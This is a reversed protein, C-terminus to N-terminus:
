RLPTDLLMGRSKWPSRWYRPVKGRLYAYMVSNVAYRSNAGIVLPELGVCRVAHAMQTATLGSNPFTRSSAALLNEPLHDGAWKTIEVPPPIKHQFLMGTGQFCSWLASTACAAM